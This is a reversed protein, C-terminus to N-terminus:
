LGSSVRNEILAMGALRHRTDSYSHHWDYYFPKDKERETIVESDHILSKQPHAVIFQVTPDHMIMNQLYENIFSHEFNVAAFASTKPGDSRDIVCFTAAVSDTISLLKQM